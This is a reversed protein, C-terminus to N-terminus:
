SNVSLMFQFVFSSPQRRFLPAIKMSLIIQLPQVLHASIKIEHWTSIIPLVASPMVIYSGSIPCKIKHMDLPKNLNLSSLLDNDPMPISTSDQMLAMEASTACCRCSYLQTRSCYSHMQPLYKIDSLLALFAQKFLISAIMWRWEPFWLCQVKPCQTYWCSFTCKSPIFCPISFFPCLM